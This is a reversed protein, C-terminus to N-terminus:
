AGAGGDVPIVAGTIYSAAPSALFVVVNAIEDATGYRGLATLSRLYDAFDGVDPNMDTAVPGIGLANVTIKKAALDRAAGKTYGEIAAKSLAYDSVGPAGVRFAIGSSMTIIRGGEAMVPAAARIAAVVGDVNVAIMRDVAAFETGGLPLVEFLGANNVLIDLRGFRAVVDAILQRVQGVDGQDAKFAAAKVGKDEIETVVAQAKDASAAYSIAVHAGAEALARATAAGIGRSGGTVLAVKGSLVKSM